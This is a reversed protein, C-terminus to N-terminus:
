ESGGDESKAVRKWIPDFNSIRVVQNGHTGYLVGWIMEAFVRSYEKPRQSVFTQKHSRLTKRMAREQSQKVRTM